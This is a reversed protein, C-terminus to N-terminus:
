CDAFFAINDHITLLQTSSNEVVSFSLRSFADVFKQWVALALIGSDESIYIISTQM